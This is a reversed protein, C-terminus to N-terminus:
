VKWEMGNWKQGNWEMENMGTMNKKLVKHRTKGGALLLALFFRGPRCRV